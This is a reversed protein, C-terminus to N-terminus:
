TIRTPSEARWCGSWHTGNTSGLDELLLRDGVRVLACHTGSLEDDDAILLHCDPRRGIVARAFPEVATVTAHQAGLTAHFQEPTLTLDALPRENLDELTLYATLPPPAASAQQLRLLAPEAAHALGALLLLLLGGLLRHRM